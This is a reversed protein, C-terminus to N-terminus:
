GDSAARVSGLIATVMARDPGEAYAVMSGATEYGGWAPDDGRGRHVGPGLAPDFTALGYFALGEEPDCATSESGAPGWREFAFECDSTDLRRWLDPVDVRLDEVAVTRWGERPAEGAVRSRPPPAADRDTLVEVGLLVGLVAVACALLVVTVRRALPSM